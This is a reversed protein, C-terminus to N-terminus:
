KEDVEALDDAERERPILEYKKAYYRFSRFSM